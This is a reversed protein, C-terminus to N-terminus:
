FARSVVLYTRASFVDRTGGDDHWAQLTVYDNEALEVLITGNICMSINDRSANDCSEVVTTLNNKRIRAAFNSDKKSQWDIQYSIWYVGTKGVTVRENNTVNDHLGGQDYVEQDFTVDTWTLYDITQDASKTLSCRDFHSGTLTSLSGNLCIFLEDQSLNTFISGDPCMPLSVGIAGDDVNPLIEPNNDGAGGLRVM